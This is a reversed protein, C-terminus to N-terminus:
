KDLTAVFSALPTGESNIYTGEGNPAFVGTGDDKPYNGEPYSGDPICYELALGYTEGVTLEYGERVFISVTEGVTDDTYRQLVTITYCTAGYITEASEVKGLIVVGTLPQVPDNGELTETAAGNATGSNSTSTEGDDANDSGASDGSSGNTSTQGGNNASTGGSSTGADGNNTSGTAGTSTGGNNTSGTATDAGGTHSNETGDTKEQVSSTTGQTSTNWDPALLFDDEEAPRKLVTYAGWAITGLICVVVISAATGAIATYRRHMQQRHADRKALVSRAIEDYSKM